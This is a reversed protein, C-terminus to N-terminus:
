PTAKVKRPRYLQSRLLRVDSAPLYRYRRAQHMRYLPPSLQAQHRHLLGRLTGLSVGLLVTVTQLMFMPECPLLVDNGHGCHQCYYTSM